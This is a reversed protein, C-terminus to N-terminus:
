SPEAPCTVIEGRALMFAYREFWVAREFYREFLRSRSRRDSEFEEILLATALNLEASMLYPCTVIEGRALMFAYREFWVAREFYREFLRSRRDSEFEEILLATALNLEASMLYGRVVLLDLLRGRTM